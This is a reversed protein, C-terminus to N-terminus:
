KNIIEDAMKYTIRYIEDYLEISFDYISNLELSFVGEYGVEHLAERLDDWDTCGIGPLNHQDAMGYNDHVHLVKILDGIERIQDGIDKGCRFAMTHGTDFCIGLNSLGVARVDKAVEHPHSISFGRCPMNEYCLTVEFDKAYNCLETLLKVNQEFTDKAIESGRESWGNVMLPHVVLFHIDAADCLRIVRKIGELLKTLQEATYPKEQAIVPAHAQHLTMGSAEALEKEHMVLAKAEEEPLTMFPSSFDGISTFDIHTFGFSSLKEYTKEGWRRGFPSFENANASVGIKM